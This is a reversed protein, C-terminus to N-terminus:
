LIGKAAAALFIHTAQTPNPSSVPSSNTSSVGRGDQNKAVSIIITVM